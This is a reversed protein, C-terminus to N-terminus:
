CITSNMRIERNSFVSGIRYRRFIRRFNYQKVNIRHDFAYIWIKNKRIVENYSLFWKIEKILSAVMAEIEHTHSFCTVWQMRVITVGTSDYVKFWWGDNFYSLLNTFGLVSQCQCSLFLFVFCVIFEISFAFFSSIVM